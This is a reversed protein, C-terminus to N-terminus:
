LLQTFLDPFNLAWWFLAPNQVTIYCIHTYFQNSFFDQGIKNSLSLVAM